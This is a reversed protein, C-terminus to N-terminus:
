LIPCDWGKERGGNEWLDECEERGEEWGAKAKDKMKERNKLVHDWPGIFDKDKLRSSTLGPWRM